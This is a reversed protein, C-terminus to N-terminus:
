DGLCRQSTAGTDLVVPCEKGNILGKTKVELIEPDPSRIRGLKVREKPCESKYHGIKQWNFCTINSKDKKNSGENRGGLQSGRQSGWGQGSPRGGGGVEVVQHSM